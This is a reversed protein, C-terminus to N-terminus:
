KINENVMEIKKKLDDFYKRNLGDKLSNKKIAEADMFITATFLAKLENGFDNLVEMPKLKKNLELMASKKLQANQLFSANLGIIKKLSEMEELSSGLEKQLNVLEEQRASLIEFYNKITEELWKIWGVSEMNAKISQRLKAVHVKTEELQERYETDKKILIDIEKEIEALKEDAEEFLAKWTLYLASGVLFLALIGRINSILQTVRPLVELGLYNVDKWFQNTEEGTPNEKKKYENIRETIQDIKEAEKKLLEIYPKVGGLQYIEKIQSAAWCVAQASDKLESFTVVPDMITSAMDQVSERFDNLNQIVKPDLGGMVSRYVGGFFGTVSSIFDDGKEVKPIDQLPTIEKPIEINSPANNKIIMLAKCTNEIIMLAKPNEVFVALGKKENNIIALSNGIKNMLTNGKRLNMTLSLPVKRNILEFPIGLYNEYYMGNIAYDLFIEFQELAQLLEEDSLILSVAVSNNKLRTFSAKAKQFATDFQKTLDARVWKALEDMQDNFSDYDGEDHSSKINKLLQAFNSDNDGYREMLDSIATEAQFLAAKYNSAIQIKLAEESFHEMNENMTIREMKFNPKSYHRMAAPYRAKLFKYQPPKIHKIYNIKTYLKTHSVFKFSKQM